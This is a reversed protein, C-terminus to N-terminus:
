MRLLSPDHGTIAEVHEGVPGGLGSIRLGGSEVM